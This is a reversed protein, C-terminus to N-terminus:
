MQAISLGYCPIYQFLELTKEYEEKNHYVTVHSTNFHRHAPMCFCILQSLGYCPIYQFEVNDIFEIMEDYIFRLM